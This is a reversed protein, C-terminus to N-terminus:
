AVQTTVPAHTKKASAFNKGDAGTEMRTKRGTSTTAKARAADQVRRTFSGTYASRSGNEPVGDRRTSQRVCAHLLYFFAFPPFFNINVYRQTASREDTPENDNDKDNRARGDLNNYCYNMHTFLIIQTLFCEIKSYYITM